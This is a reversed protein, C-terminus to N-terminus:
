ESSYSENSSADAPAEYSFRGLRSYRGLFFGVACSAQVTFVGSLSTPKAVLYTQINCGVFLLVLYLIFFCTTRMFREASHEAYKVGLLGGAVIGGIVFYAPFTGNGLSSFGFWFLAALSMNFWYLAGPMKVPLGFIGNNM